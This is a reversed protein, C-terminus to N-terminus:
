KAKCDFMRDLKCLVTYRAHVRQFIDDFKSGFEPRLGSLGAIGRKPDKAGGPLYQRLDFEKRKNDQNSGYGAFGGAGGATPVGSVSYGGGGGTGQLVDTNYGGARNQSRDPSGFSSNGNSSGGLMQGGGNPVATAASAKAVGGGAQNKQGNGDFGANAAVNNQSASGMGFNPNGALSVGAGDGLGTVGNRNCLPNTRNAALNCNLCAPNSAYAAKTCDVDLVPVKDLNPFGTNATSLNACLGGFSGSLGGAIAQTAMTQVQSNMAQCSSSASSAESSISGLQSRIACSSSGGPCVDNMMGKYKTKVADCKDECASIETYCVAALGANTAGSGYGVAQMISCAQQLKKNDGGASGIMVAGGVTALASLTNYAESVGGSTMCAVPNTCCRRTRAQQERCAALEQEAQVKLYGDNQNQATTSIPEPTASAEATPAASKASKSDKITDTPKTSSPAPSPSDATVQETGREQGPKVKGPTVQVPAQRRSPVQSNYCDFSEGCKEVWNMNANGSEILKQYDEFDQAKQFTLGPSKSLYACSTAARDGNGSDILEQVCSQYTASDALTESPFSLLLSWSCGLILFNWM